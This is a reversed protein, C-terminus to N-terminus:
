ATWMQTVDQIKHCEIEWMLWRKSIWLREVPFLSNSSFSYSPIYADRNWVHRSYEFPGDIISIAAPQSNRNIVMLNRCYRLQPKVGHEVYTKHKMKQKHLIFKLNRGTLRYLFWVSINWNCCWLSTIKWFLDVHHGNKIDKFSPAQSERALFYKNSRNLYRNSRNPYCPQVSKKWLLLVLTLKSWILM